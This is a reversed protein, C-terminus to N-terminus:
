IQATMDPSYLVVYGDRIERVSWGRHRLEHRLPAHTKLVAVDPDMDRWDQEWQWGEANIVDHWRSLADAGYRDARGDIVVQMDKAHPCRASRSGALIPGADNYHSAITAPRAVHCTHRAALAAVRDADTAEAPQLHAWGHAVLVSLALPVGIATATATASRLPVRHPSRETTLASQAHTHVQVHAVLVPAAALVSVPVHRWASAGAVGLVLLTAYRSADGPLWKQRSRALFVHAIAAACAVVLATAPMGPISLFETPQWEVLSAAAGATTIAQWPPGLAWWSGAMVVALFGMATARTGAPRPSLTVATVLVVWALLWSQHSLAWVLGAAVAACTLAVWGRRTLPSNAAWWAALMGALPMFVLGVQAPREQTFGLVVLCGWGFAWWRCATVALGGGAWPRTVAALAAAALASTGARVTPPATSQWWQDAAALAIEALPQATQWGPEGPWVSWSSASSADGVLIARGLLVHWWYDLDRRPGTTTAVVAVCAASVAAM